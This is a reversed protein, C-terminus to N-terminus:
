LTCTVLFIVYFLQYLLLVILTFIVLVCYFCIFMLLYIFLDRRGSRQCTKETTILHYVVTFTCHYLTMLYM